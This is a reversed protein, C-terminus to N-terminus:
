WILFIRFIKDICWPWRQQNADHQAEAACDGSSPEIVLLAALGGGMM